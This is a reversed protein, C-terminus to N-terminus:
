LNHNPAWRNEFVNNSKLKHPSCCCQSCWKSDNRLHSCRHVGYCQFGYIPHSYRTCDTTECYICWLDNFNMIFWTLRAQCNNHIRNQFWLSFLARQTRLDAIHMKEREVWVVATYTNICQPYDSPAVNACAGRHVNCTCWNRMSACVYAMMTTHNADLQTNIHM